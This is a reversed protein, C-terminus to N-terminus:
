TSAKRVALKDFGAHKRLPYLVINAIEFDVMSHVVTGVGVLLLISLVGRQYGTTGAAGSFYLASVIFLECVAHALAVTFSFARLKVPPLVAEKARQLYAAGLTAFILHSAARFVVVIPFGGLFFGLTTGAAVTAAVSPSIFMAIFIVVHSALTFSAPELLIKVPSFAPIIIGVAILLGSVTLRLTTYNKMPLNYWM